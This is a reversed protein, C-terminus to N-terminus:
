GACRELVRIANSNWNVREQLASIESEIKARNEAYFEADSSRYGQTKALISRLMPLNKRMGSLSSAVTAGPGSDYSDLIARAEANGACSGYRALTKASGQGDKEAYITCRQVSISKQTIPSTGFVSDTDSNKSKLITSHPTSDLYWEVKSCAPASSRVSIEARYNPKSGSAILININATCGGIPKDFDCEAATAAAVASLLCVVVATAL